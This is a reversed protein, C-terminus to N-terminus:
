NDRQAMYEQYAEDNGYEVGRSYNEGKNGAADGTNYGEEYGSNYADDSHISQQTQVEQQTQEDAFAPVSLVLLVFLVQVLGKLKSKVLGDIAIWEKLASDLRDKIGSIVADRAKINKDRESMELEMEAIVEEMKAVQGNLYGIVGIADYIFDIEYRTFKKTSNWKAALAEDEPPTVLERLRRAIEEPSKDQQTM